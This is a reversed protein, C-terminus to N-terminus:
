LSSSAQVTPVASMGQRIKKCLSSVSSAKVVELVVNASIYGEIYTYGENYLAKKLDWLLIDSKLFATRMGNEHTLFNKFLLTNEDQSFRCSRLKPSDDRQSPLKIVTTQAHHDALATVLVSATVYGKPLDTYVHYFLSRSNKFERTFSWVINRLGHCEMTHLLEDVKLRPRNMAPLESNGGHVRILSRLMLSGLCRNGYRSLHRGGRALHRRSISHWTNVLLVGFNWCMLHLQDNLDILAANSIDARYLISNAIIKSVPFTRRATSLLDAMGDLMERKGWGGSYGKGGFFGQVLNNTGVHLYIVQPNKGVYKLLKQKIPIIKAGPNCDITAGNESCQRRSYRLISDGIILCNSLIDSGGEIVKGEKVCCQEDVISPTKALREGYKFHSM